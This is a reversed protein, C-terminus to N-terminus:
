SKSTMLVHLLPLYIKKTKLYGWFNLIQYYNKLVMKFTGDIFIEECESLVNLQFKTTFFVISEKKNIKFNIFNEKLPCFALNILNEDEGLDVKILEINSLFADDKPFHEERLQQLMNKIKNHSIKIKNGSFNQIHFSLPM